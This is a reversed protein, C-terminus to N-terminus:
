SVTRGFPGIIAEPRLTALDVFRSTTTIEGHRIPEQWAPASSRSAKEATSHGQGTPLHFKSWDTEAFAAASSQQPAPPSPSAIQRDRGGDGMRSPEFLSLAAEAPKPSPSASFASMM